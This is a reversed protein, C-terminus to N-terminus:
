VIMQVEIVVFIKLKYEGEKRKNMGIKILGEIKVMKGKIMKFEKNQYVYKEEKKIKEGNEIREVMMEVEIMEDDVMIGIEIIIEGIYVRKMQIDMM